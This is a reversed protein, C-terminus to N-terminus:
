LILRSFSSLGAPRLVSFMTAVPRTYSNQFSIGPFINLDNGEIQIDTIIKPENKPREPASSLAGKKVVKPLIIYLTYVSLFDSYLSIM